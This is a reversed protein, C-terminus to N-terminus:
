NARPKTNSKENDGEDDGDDSIGGNGPEGQGDGEFDRHMGNPSVDPNKTGDVNGTSTPVVVRGQGDGNIGDGKQMGPVGNGPAMVDDKSCAAFGLAFVLALLPMPRLGALPRFLVKM